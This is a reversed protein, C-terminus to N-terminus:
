SYLRLIFTVPDVAYTMGAWSFRDKIQERGRLLSATKLNELAFSLERERKIGGFSAQRAEVKAWAEIQENFLINGATDFYKRFVTAGQENLILIKRCNTKDLESLNVSIKVSKSFCRYTITVKGKPPVKTFHTQVGFMKRNKIMWDFVPRLNQRSLYGKEFTKHFFLYLQNNIPVGWIQKESVTDMFFIKKFIASKENYKVVYTQATGSFFTQSDYKAVPVGFGAGEEVLEEGSLMLILGKQLPAIELNRPRNDPYLRFALSNEAVFTFPEDLEAFM